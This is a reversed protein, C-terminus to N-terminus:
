LQCGKECKKEIMCRLALEYASRLEADPEQDRKKRLLEIARELMVADKGM